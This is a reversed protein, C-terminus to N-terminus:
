QAPTIATPTIPGAHDPDAHCIGLTRLAAEVTGDSNSVVGIPIGLGDLTRMGPRVPTPVHTWNFGRITQSMETTLADIKATPVGCATVDDLLYVRWWTDSAPAPQDPRDQRSMAWYHARVLTEIDPAM